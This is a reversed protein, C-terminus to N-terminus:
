CGCAGKIPTTSSVGDVTVTSTGSFWCAEAGPSSAVLDVKLMVEESQWTTSWVEESECDYLSLEGSRLRLNEAGLNVHAQAPEGNIDLVLVEPGSGYSGEQVNPVSENFTCGCVMSQTDVPQLANLAPQETSGCGVAVVSALMLARRM